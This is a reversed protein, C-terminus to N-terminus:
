IEFFGIRTSRRDEIVPLGNLFMRLVLTKAVTAQNNINCCLNRGMIGIDGGLNMANEVIM